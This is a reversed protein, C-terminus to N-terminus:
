SPAGRLTPDHELFRAAGVALMRRLTPTSATRLADCRYVADLVTQFSLPVRVDCMARIEDDGVGWASLGTGLDGQAILPLAPTLDPQGDEACGALFRPCSEASQTQIRDITVIMRLYELTPPNKEVRGHGFASNWWADPLTKSMDAAASVSPAVREMMKVAPTVSSEPFSETLYGIRAEASPHTHSTRIFLAKEVSHLAYMSLLVGLVAVMAGGQRSLGPVVEAKDRSVIDLIKLALLDADREERQSPDVVPVGDSTGFSRTSMQHGLVFHATEHALVFSWAAQTVVLAIDDSKGTLRVGLKAALGFVRHQVHHYRLLAAQRQVQEPDPRKGLIMPLLDGYVGFRRRQEPDLSWAVMRALYNCMSLLADSVVVLGSGDSCPTFHATADEDNLSVFLLQDLDRGSPCLERAARKVADASVQLAVSVPDDVALEIGMAILDEVRRVTDPFGLERARRLM